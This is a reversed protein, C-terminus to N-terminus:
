TWNCTQWLVLGFSVVVFHKVDSDHRHKAYSKKVKVRNLLMAAQGQIGATLRNSEVCFAPRSM